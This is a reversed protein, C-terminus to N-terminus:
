HEESDLFSLLSLLLASSDWACCDILGANRSVSNELAGELTALVAGSNALAADIILLCDCKLARLHVLRQAVLLGSSAALLHAASYAPSCGQPTVLACSCHSITSPSHTVVM